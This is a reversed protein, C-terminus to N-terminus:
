DKLLKCNKPQQSLLQENKGFTKSTLRQKQVLAISPACLKSQNSTDTISNNHMRYGGQYLNISRASQKVVVGTKLTDISVLEPFLLQNDGPLEHEFRALRFGGTFHSNLQDVHATAAYGELVYGCAV